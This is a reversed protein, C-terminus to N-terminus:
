AFSGLGQCDPCSDVWAVRGAPTIDYSGYGTSMILGRRYLAGVTRINVQKGNALFGIGDWGIVLREGTAMRGLVTRQANSLKM